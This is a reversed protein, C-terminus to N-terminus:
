NKCRHHTNKECEDASPTRMTPRVNTAIERALVGGGPQIEVDQFWYAYCFPTMLTFFVSLWHRWQASQDTRKKLYCFVGLLDERCEMWSPRLQLPISAGM